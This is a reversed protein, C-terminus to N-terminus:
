IEIKDLPNQLGHWMLGIDDGRESLKGGSGDLVDDELVVVGQAELEARAEPEWRIDVAVLGALEEARALARLMAMAQTGGAGIVAVDSLSM